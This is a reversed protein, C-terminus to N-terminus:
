ATETARCRLTASRVRPGSRPPDAYGNQRHWAGMAFAASSMVDEIPIRRTPMQAPITEVQKM